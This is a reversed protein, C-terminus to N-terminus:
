VTASNPAVGVGDAGRAGSQAQEGIFQARLSDGFVDPLQQRADRRQQRKDDNVFKGVLGEVRLPLMSYLGM